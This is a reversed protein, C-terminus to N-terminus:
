GSISKHQYDPHISSNSIYAAQDFDRGYYHPDLTYAEKASMAATYGVVKGDDLLLVAVGSRRTLEDAIFDSRFGSSGFNLAEIKELECAVKWLEAYGQFAFTVATITM